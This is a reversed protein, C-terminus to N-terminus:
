EIMKYSKDAESLSSPRVHLFKKIHAKFANKQHLVLLAQALMTM